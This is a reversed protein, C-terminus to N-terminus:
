EWEGMKISDNSTKVWERSVAKKNKPIYLDRVWLLTDHYITNCWNSALVTPQLGMKTLYNQSSFFLFEIMTCIEMNSYGSQLKKFIGLDRHMNSIVYKSGSEKSKERFFYMLDRANFTDINEETLNSYKKIFDKYYDSTANRPKPEPVYSKEVQGRLKRYAEQLDNTTSFNRM